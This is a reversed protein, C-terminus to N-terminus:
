DVDFGFPWVSGFCENRCGDACKPTTDVDQATGSFCERVTTGVIVIVAGASISVNQAYLHAVRHACVPVDDHHVRSTPADGETRM